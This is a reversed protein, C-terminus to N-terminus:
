YFHLFIFVSLGQILVAEKAPSITPLYFTSTGWARPEPNADGAGIYLHGCYHAGPLGTGSCCTPPPLHPSIGPATRVAVCVRCVEM